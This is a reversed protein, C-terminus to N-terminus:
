KETLSESFSFKEKITSFHLYFIIESLNIFQKVYKPPTRGRMLVSPLNPFKENETPVLQISSATMLFCQSIVIRKLLFTEVLQISAHSGCIKECHGLSYWLIVAILNGTFRYSRLGGKEEDKRLRACARLSESKGIQCGNVRRKWLVISDRNCGCWRRGDAMEAGMCCIRGHCVWKSVYRVM